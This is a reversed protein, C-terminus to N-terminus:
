FKINILKNKISGTITVISISVILAQVIILIIYSIYNNGVISLLSNQILTGLFLDTLNIAILFGFCTFISMFLIQFLKKNNRFLYLILGLLFYLLLFFIQHIFFLFTIIVATMATFIFVQYNIKFLYIYITIPILIGNLINLHGRFLILFVFIVALILAGSTLDKLKM